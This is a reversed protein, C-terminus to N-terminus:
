EIVEEALVILSTPITLGLAKATKLNIVLAINMPQEVPIDAPKTGKLIKDVYSAARRFMPAFDPGYSMLLGEEPFERRVAMAPLRAKLALESLRRRHETLLVSPAVVLAGAGHALMASLASELEDADRLAVIQVDLNLSRAAAETERLVPATAPFSPDSLIGVRTVNPVAQVLLELRKAALDASIISLGTLNTGPSALSRVLGSGVPNGVRVLVIPVTLTARKAAVAASTGIAVIVDVQLRTLEAALDPLIDQKGNAVRHEFAVTRGDVYGLQRLVKALPAFELSEV